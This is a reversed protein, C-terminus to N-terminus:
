ASIRPRSLADRWKQAAAYRDEDSKARAAFAAADAIAALTSAQQRGVYWAVVASVASEVYGVLKPVAVLANLLLVLFNGM